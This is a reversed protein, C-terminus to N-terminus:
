PSEKNNVLDPLVIGWIGLLDRRSLKTADHEGPWERAPAALEDMLRDLREMPSEDAAHRSM